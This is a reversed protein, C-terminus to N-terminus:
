KLPSFTRHTKYDENKLIYQDYMYVTTICFNNSKQMKKEESWCTETFFIFSAMPHFPCSIDRFVSCFITVVDDGPSKEVVNLGATGGILEARDGGGLSEDWKVSYKLMCLLVTEWVYHLLDDLDAKWSVFTDVHNIPPASFVLHLCFIANSKRCLPHALHNALTM